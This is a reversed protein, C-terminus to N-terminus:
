GLAQEPATSTDSAAPNPFPARLSQAVEAGTCHEPVVTELRVVELGPRGLVSGGAARGPLGAEPARSRGVSSSTEANPPFPSPDTRGSDAVRLWRWAKRGHRDTLSSVGGSRPRYVQGGQSRSQCWVSPTPSGQVRLAVTGQAVHRDLNVECAQRQQHCSKLRPCRVSFITHPPLWTVM